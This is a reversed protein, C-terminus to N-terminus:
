LHGSTVLRGLFFIGAAIFAFLIFDPVKSGPKDGVQATYLAKIVFISAIILIFTIVPAQYQAEWLAGLGQAILGGDRFLQYAFGGIGLLVLAGVLISGLATYLKKLM